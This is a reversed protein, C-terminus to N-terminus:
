DFDEDGNASSSEELAMTELVHALMRHLHERDEASLGAFLQDELAVVCEDCGPARKIGQPTIEVIHRRRDSPDRKRVLLGEGELANLFAVLNSPDVHLREGLAQQSMPGLDRLLILISAQSPKLGTGLLEETLQRSAVRGLRALLFASSEVM